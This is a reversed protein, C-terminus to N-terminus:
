RAVQKLTSSNSRNERKYQNTKSTKPFPAYGMGKEGM